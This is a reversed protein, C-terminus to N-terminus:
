WVDCLVQSNKRSIAPRNQRLERMLQYPAVAAIRNDSEKREDGTLPASKVAFPM